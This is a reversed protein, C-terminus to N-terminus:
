EEKDNDMNSIKMDYYKIKRKLLKILLVAVYIIVAMIGLVFLSSFIIVIITNM